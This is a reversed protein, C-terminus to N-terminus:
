EVLDSKSQLASPSSAGAAILLQRVEADPPREAALSRFIGAAELNRGQNLLVKGM